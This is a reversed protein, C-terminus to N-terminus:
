LIEICVHIILDNLGTTYIVGEVNDSVTLSRDKAEEVVKLITSIWEKEAINKSVRFFTNFMKREKKVPLTDLFPDEFLRTAQDSIILRWTGHNLTQNYLDSVPVSFGLYAISFYTNFKEFKVSKEIAGPHDMGDHDLYRIAEFCDVRYLGINDEATKLIHIIHASASLLLTQQELEKQKRNFQACVDTVTDHFTYHNIIDACQSVSYGLAQMKQLFCIKSLDSVSFSHYGNHDKSPSIVGAKAYYRLSGESLGTLKQFEKKQM